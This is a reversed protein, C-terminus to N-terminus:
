LGDKVAQSVESDAEYTLVSWSPIVHGRMAAISNRVSQVVAGHEKWRDSEPFMKQAAELATPHAISESPARVVVVSLRLVDDRRACVAAAWYM